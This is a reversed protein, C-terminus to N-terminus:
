MGPLPDPFWAESAHIPTGAKIKLGLNKITERDPYELERKNLFDVILLNQSAILNSDLDDEDEDYQTLAWSEYGEDGRYAFLTFMEEMPELVCCYYTQGTVQERVAFLNDDFM